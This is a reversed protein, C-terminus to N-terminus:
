IVLADRLLTLRPEINTTSFLELVIQQCHLHSQLFRTPRARRVHPACGASLIIILTGCYQPVLESKHNSSIWSEERRGSWLRHRGTRGSTYYHVSPNAVYWIDPRLFVKSPSTIWYEYCFDKTRKGNTLDKYFISLNIFGFVLWGSETVISWKNRIQHCAPALSGTSCGLKSVPPHRLIICIRGKWLLLSYEYSFLTTQRQHCCHRPQHHGRSM